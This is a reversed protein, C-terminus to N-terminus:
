AASPHLGCRSGCELDVVDAYHTLSDGQTHRGALVAACARIMLMRAVGPLRRIPGKKSQPVGAFVQPDRECRRRRHQRHRRPPPTAASTAGIRCYIASGRRTPAHEQEQRERAPWDARWIVPAPKVYGPKHISMHPSRDMHFAGPGPRHAGDAWRTRSCAIGFVGFVTNVTWEELYGANSSRDRKAKRRYGENM